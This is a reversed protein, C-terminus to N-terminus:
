SVQTGTDIMLLEQVHGHMCLVYLTMYLQALQLTGIVEPLNSNIIM